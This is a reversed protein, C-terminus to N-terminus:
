LKWSDMESVTCLDTIKFHIKNIPPLPPVAGIYGGATCDGLASCWSEYQRYMAPDQGSSHHDTMGSGNKGIHLESLSLTWHLPVHYADRKAEM